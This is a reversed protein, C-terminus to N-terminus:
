PGGDHQPDHGPVRRLQLPPRAHPEGGAGRDRRPHSHGGGAGRAGPRHAPTRDQTALGHNFIERAGGGDVPDPTASGRSPCGPAGRELAAELELTLDDLVLWGGPTLRVAGDERQALGAAVWRRVPDLGATGLGATELGARTRLALWLAELRAQRATLVEGGERGHGTRAVQDRYEPWGHRNWWREGHRYSHAGNGLGLYPAGKWCAANHRSAYGPRAFNSVEYHEYGSRSLIESALLYEDRYRAEGCPAIREERVARALPTGHEVTLGYLSIHPVDLDLTRELDRRWDRSVTRPLGFILDVSLNSIGAERAAEVAEEADRASHLRGMWRLASPSFSQVGFSVRNVGGEGWRKAVEESFSEPNAEATWEFGSGQLRERGAVSALEAVRDPDLVSPTGGGVYLTELAPSLLVDGREEMWDLETRIAALWEVGDPRRNVEVAFDCYCCRRACFPAHVYVNRIEPSEKM